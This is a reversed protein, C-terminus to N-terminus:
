TLLLSRGESHPSCAGPREINGNSLFAYLSKPPGSFDVLTLTNGVVAIGVVSKGSASTVKRHEIATEFPRHLQLM